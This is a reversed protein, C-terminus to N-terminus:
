REKLLTAIHSRSLLAYALPGVALALAVGSTATLFGFMSQDLRLSGVLRLGVVTGWLLGAVAGIVAILATEIWGLRYLDLTSMGLSQYLGLESRRFWVGIWLILSLLAGGPIWLSQTSRELLSRLPDRTFEGTPVLSRIGISLEDKDFWSLLEGKATSKAQPAFEVWCEDGDGAAVSPIMVWRSAAEYRGSVDVVGAIQVVGAVGRPEVTVGAALGLEDAAAQGVFFQSIPASLGPTRDRAWVDLLRGSVEVTQFRVGPATSFITQEARRVGGAALVHDLRNLETCRDLQLTGDEVGVVFVNLGRETFAQQDKIVGDVFSVETLFLGAVVGAFAAMVVLGRMGSSVVNRIGEGILTRVNWM